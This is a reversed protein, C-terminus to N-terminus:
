LKKDILKVDFKNELNNIQKNHSVEIDQIRMWKIGSLTECKPCHLEWQNNRIGCSSCYYNLGQPANAAKELYDKVKEVENQSGAIDALVQYAKNTLKENAINSLLKSAEGYIKEHVAFSAIEIKLDNRMESSSKKNLLSIARAVRSGSNKLNWKKSLKILVQPHATMLFTKELNSISKSNSGIGTIMHSLNISALIHAPNQKIAEKLYNIAAKDNENSISELGLLYNFDGSINRYIKDEVYKLNKMTKLHTLSNNFDDIKSYSALLIELIQKSEPEFKLAKEGEDIIIKLDTKNVIAQRMLALHGVVATTPDDTLSKFYDQSINKKNRSNLNINNIVNLHEKLLLGLKKDKTNKAILAAEKAASLYEGHSALLFAKVLKQEVKKSNKKDLRGIASKPINVILIWIRDLFILIVVFILAILIFKDTQLEIGWGMWNITTNGETNAIFNSVVGIIILFLILKVARFIM